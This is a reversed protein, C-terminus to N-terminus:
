EAASISGGKQQEYERIYEAVIKSLIDKLYAKEVRAIMKLKDLKNKDVTFTVRKIAPSDEQEEISFQITQRILADLGSQARPSLPKTANKKGPASSGAGSRATEESDDRLAEELLSDLDSSFDKSSGRAKVRKVPQASLPVNDVLAVSETLIAEAADDFISELGSTFRKKSM